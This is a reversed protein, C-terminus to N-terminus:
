FFVGYSKAEFFGSFVMWSAQPAELTEDSFSRSTKMSRLGVEDMAALGRLRSAVQPPSRLRLFLGGPERLALADALILHDPFTQFDIYM